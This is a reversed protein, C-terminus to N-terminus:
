AGVPSPKPYKRPPPSAVGRGIRSLHYFNYPPEHYQRIYQAARHRAYKSNIPGGQGSELVNAFITRVIEMTSPEKIMTQRYDAGELM